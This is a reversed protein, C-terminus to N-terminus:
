YLYPPGISINIITCLVKYIIAKSILLTNLIKSQEKFQNTIHKLKFLNTKIKYRFTIM